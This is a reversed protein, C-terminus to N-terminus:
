EAKAGLWSSGTGPEKKSSLEEALRRSAQWGAVGLLALAILASLHKAAAIVGGVKLSPMGEPTVMGWLQMVDMSLSLIALLFFVAGVLCLMSLSRLVFQHRLFFALIMAMGIGMIPTFVYVAMLGVSAYRWQVRDWQFPLATTFFDTVPWLVLTFCFFYVAAIGIVPPELIRKSM